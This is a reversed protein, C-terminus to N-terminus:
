RSQWQPQVWLRSCVTHSRSRQHKCLHKSTFVGKDNKKEDEFSGLPAAAAAPADWDRHKLSFNHLPTALKSLWKHELVSENSDFM